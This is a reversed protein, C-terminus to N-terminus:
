FVESQNFFELVDVMKRFHADLDTLSLNIQTDEDSEQSKQAAALQTKLVKLVKTLLRLLHPKLSPEALAEAELIKKPLL